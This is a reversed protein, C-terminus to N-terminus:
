ATQYSRKAARSKAAAGALLPFVYAFGFYLAVGIGAIIVVNELSTSVREVTGPPKDKETPLPTTLNPLTTGSLTEYKDRLALHEKDLLEMESEDWKLYKRMDVLVKMAREYFPDWEDLFFRNVVIERATYCERSPGTATITCAPFSPDGKRATATALLKTAISKFQSQSANIAAATRIAHEGASEGFFDIGVQADPEALVGRVGHSRRVLHM